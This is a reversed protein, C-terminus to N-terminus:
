RGSSAIAAAKKLTKLSARREKGLGEYGDHESININTHRAAQVKRRRQQEHQSM